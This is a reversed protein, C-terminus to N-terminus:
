IINLNNLELAGYRMMDGHMKEHKKRARGLYTHGVRIERVKAGRRGMRADTPDAPILAPPGRRHAAFFLHPLAESGLGLLQNWM